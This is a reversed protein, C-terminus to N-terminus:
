IGCESRPSSALPTLSDGVEALVCPSAVASGDRSAVTIVFADAPLRDLLAPEGRVDSLLVIQQRSRIIVAARDIIQHPLVGRIVLESGRQRFSIIRGTTGAGTVRGNGSAAGVFPDLRVPLARESLEPNAPYTRGASRALSPSLLL